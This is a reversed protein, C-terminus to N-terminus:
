SREGLPFNLSRSDPFAQARALFWEGGMPVSIDLPLQRVHRQCLVRLWNEGGFAAVENARDVAFFLPRLLEAEGSLLEAFM